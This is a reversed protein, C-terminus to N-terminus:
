RVKVGTVNQQGSAMRSGNKSLSICSVERTHGDFFSEKGSKLNKIVIFSGLPYLLYKGCPTCTLSDRVTGSIFLTLTLRPRTGLNNADLIRGFFLEFFEQNGSFGIVAKIKLEAM